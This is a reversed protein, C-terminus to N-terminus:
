KIQKSDILQQFMENVALKLPRYTLGLERKGKSNNAKWPYGINRSVEKRSMGAAPGIIWLFWKPLNKKPLPYNDGYNDRLMDALDLFQISENSCIYRGNASPTYAAQFHANAVDRVDVGGINMEPAGFKMTGTGMQKIIDFSASTAKPNTGPGIILSPNVCILDWRNQAKQMKWAEKEALLKSYSYAQHNEDSSNNWIEESFEGNPTDKLDIADGYIAACSSTLVVRKVSKTKNVSNLVNQTGKLAPEILDKQKDKVNLIFPSATHFVLECGQMAEEYSGDVLLDSKFFKLSGSNAEAMDELHQIKKKNEPNRVAAHVQIGDELLQKILWGAVYGTAGTVMVPKKKDINM